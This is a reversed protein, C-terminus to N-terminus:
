IGEYSEILKGERCCERCGESVQNRRVSEDQRPHKGSLSHDESRLISKQFVTILRRIKTNTLVYNLFFRDLASKSKLNEYLHSHFVREGRNHRWTTQYFKM